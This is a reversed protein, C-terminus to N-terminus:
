TSQHATKGIQLQIVDRNMQALVDVLRVAVHRNSSTRTRDTQRLFALTEALVATLTSHVVTAAPRAVTRFRAVGTLSALLEGRM